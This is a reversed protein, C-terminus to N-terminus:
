SRRERERILRARELAEAAAREYQEATPHGAVQGISVETLKAAEAVVRGSGDVLRAAIRPGPMSRHRDLWGQGYDRTCVFHQRWKGFALVEVKWDERRSM